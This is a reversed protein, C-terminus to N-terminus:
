QASPASLQYKGGGVGGAHSTNQEFTITKECQLQNYFATVSSAPCTRDGLAAYIKVKCTMLHAFNAEDFNEFDVINSPWTRPRRGISASKVDCMWPISINLLSVDVGTVNKTLAAVATSQMAGMSGGSVEFTEGDWYNNGNEGFYEILFRAGFLDRKIMERFYDVKVYNNTIRMKQKAYYGTDSKAKEQNISHSAVVLVATNEQYSPSELPITGDYGRFCIKLGIKNEASADAPFTLYGAAINDEIKNKGGTPTQWYYALYGTKSSSVPTLKLSVSQAKIEDVVTNWYSDFSDPTQAAPTIDAFGFAIGGVFQENEEATATFISIKNKSQDCANVKFYFYGERNFNLVSYEFYGKSGDVYEDTKKGTAESWTEVHFYPVSLLKEGSVAAFTFTAKEGVAYSLPNKDSEGILKASTATQYSVAEGDTKIVNASFSNSLDVKEGELENLKTKFLEVAGSLLEKKPASITLTRSQVYFGYSRQPMGTDICLRIMKGDEPATTKTPLAVGARAAFASQVSEALASQGEPYVIVHNAISKGGITVKTEPEEDKGPGPDVPTKPGCSVASLLIALTFVALLLRLINRKKM